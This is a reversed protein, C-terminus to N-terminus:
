DSELNTIRIDLTEVYAPPDIRYEMGARQNLVFNPHKTPSTVPSSFQANSSFDATALWDQIAAAASRTREADYDLVDIQFRVMVM